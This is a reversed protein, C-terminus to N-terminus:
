KGKKEVSGLQFLETLVVKLDLFVSILLLILQRNIKSLVAYELSVSVSYVDVRITMM